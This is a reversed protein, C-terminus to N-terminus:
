LCFFDCTSASGLKAELSDSPLVAAAENEVSGGIHGGTSSKGEGSVACRAWLVLDVM